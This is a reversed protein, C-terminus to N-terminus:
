YLIIHKHVFSFHVSTQLVPVQLQNGQAPNDAAAIEQPRSIHQLLRPRRCHQRIQEAADDNKQWIIASDLATCIYDAVALASDTRHAGLNARFKPVLRNKINDLTPPLGHLSMQGDLIQFNDAAESWRHAAILYNTAEM